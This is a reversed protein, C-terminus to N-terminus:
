NNPHKRGKFQGNLCTSILFFAGPNGIGKWHTRTTAVRIDINKIQATEEAERAYSAQPGAALTGLKPIAGISRM